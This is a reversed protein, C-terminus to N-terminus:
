NRWNLHLTTKIDMIANLSLLVFKFLVVDMNQSFFQGNVNMGVYVVCKSHLVAM